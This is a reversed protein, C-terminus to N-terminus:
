TKKLSRNAAQVTRGNKRDVISAIHSASKLFHEAVQYFTGFKREPEQKLKGGELLSHNWGSRNANKIIRKM